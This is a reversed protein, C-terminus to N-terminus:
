QVAREIRLADMNPDQLLQLVNAATGPISPLSKVRVMVADKVAVSM